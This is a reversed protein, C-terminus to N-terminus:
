VTGAPVIGRAIATNIADNVVADIHRSDRIKWVVEEVRVVAINNGSDRATEFGRFQDEIFEKRFKM